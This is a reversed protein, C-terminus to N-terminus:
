AAAALRCTASQVFLCATEYADLMGAVMDCVRALHRTSKVQMSVETLTDLVQDIDSALDEVLSFYVRGLSAEGFSKLKEQAKKNNLVFVVCENLLAMREHIAAFRSRVQSVVHVNEEVMSDFYLSSFKPYFSCVSDKNIFTKIEKKHKEYISKWRRQSSLVTFVNEVIKDESLSTEKEAVFALGQLCSKAERRKGENLLRVARRAENFMREDTNKNEVITMEMDEYFRFHISGDKKEEFYIKCLRGEGDAVVVHDEFTAVVTVTSASEFILVRHSNIAENVRSIFQEYSGDVLKQLEETRLTKHVIRGM